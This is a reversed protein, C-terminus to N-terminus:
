SLFPIRIGSNKLQLLERQLGTRRDISWANYISGDDFTYITHDGYELKELAPHLKVYSQMFGADSSTDNVVVFYRDPQYEYWRESSIWPNPALSLTDNKFLVSRITVNEGSLYTDVGADWYDGYGFSLGNAGMYDILGYNGANPKNEIQMVGAVNLGAAAVLLVVLLAICANNKVPYLVAILMLILLALFTLYRATAIGSSLSTLVSSATFILGLAILFAYFARYKEEKERFARFLALCMVAVFAAAVVYDAVRAGRLDTALTYLGSNLLLLLSDIFSVANALISTGHGSVTVVYPMANDMLLMKYGVILAPFVLLSGAITDPRRRDPRPIRPRLLLLYVALYPVIFYAMFITDSFAVATALLITLLAVYGKVKRMDWLLLLCIGTFLISTNHAVPTAYLAYAAPSLTAFLASTALARTRDGTLRYVIYAYVAVILLFIAFNVVRIAGPDYDTLVQPILQFPIVESFLNPDASNFIFGDLLYNGHKWIEMSLVGPYVSDSTLDLNLSFFLKCAMGAITVLALIAAILSDKAPGFKKWRSNDEM